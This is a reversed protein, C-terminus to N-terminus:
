KGKNADEKAKLKNIEDQKAEIKKNKLVVKKNINKIQGEFAVKAEKPNTKVQTAIHTELSKIQAEHHQINKASQKEKPKAQEKALKKQAGSKKSMLM